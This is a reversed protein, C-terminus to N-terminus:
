PYFLEDVLNSIPIQLHDAVDKLIKRFTGIRIPDHLPVTITHSRENATTKLRAHSGTQHVLRYGKASLLQILETGSVNRPTKM